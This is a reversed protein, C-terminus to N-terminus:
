DDAIGAIITWNRSKNNNILLAKVPSISLLVQHHLNLVSSRLYSQGEGSDRLDDALQRSRNWDMGGDDDDVPEFSFITQSQVLRRKWTTTNDAVKDRDNIAAAQEGEKRRLNALQKARKKEYSPAVLHPYVDALQQAIDM